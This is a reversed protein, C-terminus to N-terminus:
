LLEAGSLACRAGDHISGDKLDAASVVEGRLLDGLGYPPV